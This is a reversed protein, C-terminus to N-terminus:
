LVYKPFCKFLSPELIQKYNRIKNNNNSSSHESAALQTPTTLRWGPVQWIYIPGDNRTKKKILFFSSIILTTYFYSINRIKCHSLIEFFVNQCLKKGFTTWNLFFQSGLLFRLTITMYRRLFLHGGGQSQGEVGIPIVIIFRAM